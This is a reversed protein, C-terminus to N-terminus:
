KLTKERQQKRKQKRKQKREGAAATKEGGIGEIGRGVKAGVKRERVGRSIKSGGREGATRERGM